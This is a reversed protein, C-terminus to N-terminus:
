IMKDHWGSSDFVRCQTSQAHEIDWLLLNIELLNGGGEQERPYQSGDDKNM